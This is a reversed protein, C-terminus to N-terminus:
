VLGIVNKHYQCIPDDVVHLVRLLGNHVGGRQRQGDDDDPDAVGVELGHFDQVPVVLAYGRCRPLPGLPVDDLEHGHVLEDVRVRVVQGSLNPAAEVVQRALDQVLHGALQQLVHEHVPDARGVRRGLVRGLPGPFHGVVPLGAGRPGHEGAPGGGHGKHLGLEHGLPDGPHPGVKDLRVAAVACRGGSGPLPGLSFAGRLAAAHRDAARQSWRSPPPPPRPSGSSAAAAPQVPRLTCLSRKGGGQPFRPRLAQAITGDPSMRRKSKGPISEQRTSALLFQNYPKSHHLKRNNIMICGLSIIM